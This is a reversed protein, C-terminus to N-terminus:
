DERYDHLLISGALGSVQDVGFRHHGFAPVQFYRYFDNMAKVGGMRRALTEVYRNTGGIPGIQLYGCFTRNM